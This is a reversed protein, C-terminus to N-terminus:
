QTGRTFCNPVASSDWCWGQATCDNPQIGVAGKAVRNAAAVGICDPNATFLFCIIAYIYSCLLLLLYKKMYHSRIWSCKLCSDAIFRFRKAIIYSVKNVLFQYLLCLFLNFLHFLTLCCLLLFCSISLLDSWYM